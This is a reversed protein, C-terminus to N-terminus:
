RKAKLKALFAEVDSRRWRPRKASGVSRPLENGARMRRLTRVDLALLAAFESPTVLADRGARAGSREVIRQLERVEDILVILLSTITPIHDGAREANADIATTALRDGNNAKASMSQRSECYAIVRYGM